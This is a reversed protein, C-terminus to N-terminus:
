QKITQSCNIYYGKPETSEDIEKYVFTGNIIFIENNAINEIGIKDKCNKKSLYVYNNESKIVLLGVRLNIEGKVQVQQNLYNQPNEQIDKISDYIILDIPDPISTIDQVLNNFDYGTIYLVLVAGSILIVITNLLSM